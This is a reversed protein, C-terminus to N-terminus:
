STSTGTDSMILLRKVEMAAIISKARFQRSASIIRFIYRTTMIIRSRSSSVGSIRGTAASALFRAKRTGGKCKRALM